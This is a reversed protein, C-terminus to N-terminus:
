DSPSEPLSELNKVLENHLQDDRARMDSWVDSLHVLEKAKGLRYGAAEVLVRISQGKSLGAERLQALVHEMPEGHSVMERCKSVATTIDDM